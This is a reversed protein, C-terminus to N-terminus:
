SELNPVNIENWNEGVIIWELLSERFLNYIIRNCNSSSKLLDEKIQSSMLLTVLKNNVREEFLAEIANDISGRSEIDHGVKDIALFEARVVEDRFLDQEEANGWGNGITNVIEPLSTYRASYGNRLAEKIILSAIFSKGTGSDGGLYVGVGKSLAIDLNSCYKLTKEKIIENNQFDDLELDWFKIPVGAKALKWDLECAVICSCILEGQYGSGKCIPCNKTRNSKRDNLVTVIRKTLKM